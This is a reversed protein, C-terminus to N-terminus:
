LLHVQSCHQYAYSIGLRLWMDCGCPCLGPMKRGRGKRQKGESLLSASYDSCGCGMRHQALASVSCGALRHTGAGCKHAGPKGDAVAGAGDEKLANHGTLKSAIGKCSQCVHLHCAKHCDAVPLCPQM